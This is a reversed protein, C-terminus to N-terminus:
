KSHQPNLRRLLEPLFQKKRSVCGAWVEGSAGLRHKFAPTRADFLVLSDSRFIDTVLLAAFEWGGRLRREHLANAFNEMHGADLRTRDVTEIQAVAFRVGGGSFEKLDKEVLEAAPRELTEDNRVLMERGFKKLDVKARRALAVAQQRDVETTTPSTLLLTDAVIAGLLLKAQAPLPRKGHEAFKCAIITSTSGVPRCDVRIPLTTELTGVRHHDVIEIIDVDALGEPAQHQEFHDVLVVRGRPFSMIETRSLVGFLTGDPNMVPLAFQAQRLAAQAEHITQDPTLRPFNETQMLRAAPVAMPLQTVLAMLSGRYHLVGLGPCERLAKKWAADKQSACTIVVAAGADRCRALLEPQDGILALSGPTLRSLDLVIQGEAETKPKQWRTLKLYRELDAVSFLVGLFDEANAHYFYNAMPMRDSLLGLLKRKTDLVPVVGIRHRMILHLAEGLTAEPGVSHVESRAVDSVRAHLHCIQRPLTIGTEAFLWKTQASLEGLVVGEFTEGNRSLSSLLGAYVFASVASDTDPRQHGVVFTPRNGHHTGSM